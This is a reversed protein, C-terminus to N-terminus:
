DEEEKFAIFSFFEIFKHIPINLIEGTTKVLTIYQVLNDSHPSINMVWFYEKNEKNMVQFREM